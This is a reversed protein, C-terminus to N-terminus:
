IKLETTTPRLQRHLDLGPAPPGGDSCKREDDDARGADQAAKHVHRDSLRLVARRVLVGGGGEDPSRDREPAPEQNVERAPQSAVEPPRPVGENRGLLLGLRQLPRELDALAALAIRSCGENGSGKRLGGGRGGHANVSGRVFRVARSRAT